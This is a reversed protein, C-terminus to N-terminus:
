IEKKIQANLQLICRPRIVLKKTATFRSWTKDRKAGAAGKLTYLHPLSFDREESM